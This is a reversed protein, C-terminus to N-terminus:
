QKETVMPWLLVSAGSSEKRYLDVNDGVVCKSHRTYVYTYMSTDFENHNHCFFDVDKSEPCAWQCEIVGLLHRLIHPSFAGIACQNDVRPM